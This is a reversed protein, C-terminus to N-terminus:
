IARIARDDKSYCLKRTKTKFDIETLWYIIYSCRVTVRFPLLLFTSLAYRNVITTVFMEWQWKGTLTLMMGFTDGQAIAIRSHNFLFFVCYYGTPKNCKAPRLTNPINRIPLEFFRVVCTLKYEALWKNTTICNIRDHNNIICGETPPWTLHQVEDTQQM